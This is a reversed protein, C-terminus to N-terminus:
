WAVESPTDHTFNKAFNFFKFKQYNKLIHLKSKTKNQSPIQLSDSDHTIM